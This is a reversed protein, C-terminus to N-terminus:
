RPSPWTGTTCTGRSSPCTSPWKSPDAPPPLSPASPRAYRQSRAPLPSIRRSSRGIPGVRAAARRRRRRRRATRMSCLITCPRTPHPGPLHRASASSVLPLFLSSLARFIRNAGMEGKGICRRGTTRGRRAARMRHHPHVWRGKTQARHGVSAEKVRCLPRACERESVNKREGNWVRGERARLFHDLESRGPRPWRARGPTLARAIVVVSVRPVVRVLPRREQHTRGGERLLRSLVRLLVARVVGGSVGM